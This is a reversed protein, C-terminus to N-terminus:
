GAVVVLEINIHGQNSFFALAIDFLDFYRNRGLQNKSAISSSCQLTDDIFVFSALASRFIALITSLM